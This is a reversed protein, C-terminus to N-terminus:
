SAASTSSAFKTFLHPYKKQFQDEREWTFEPGRRSNWRVKIIPIRIQKLWKVKHDIIEVPEEVFRLKDDIHIEDLSIALPEDSLCKKLNSIHSTIHVKSLQQPPKLRYVIIRVKALVKFPGIYRPNLKGRKGFHIVGKWPAVKLMVEDGVQFELPKCRVDAYSKQPDCAAQIRSKIQIIKETTDHIIELGTLQVDRVEVKLCTLCKSVYTAIDAKMNPWWYLKKMDQYMKDSGPHFSYKSKHSEHMILTRLYGFCPLWSRNKLCLTEDARPELKEKRIMGGVDKAEFNEPKRAEIKENQMLVVGLGKHSADCYVIFNKAGEPLASIPASCLKHKLLQFAAKQKDSWDFKVKKQTLKTMSKTIKSFGEIFLDIKSYVSSGQLQDFLDGIRPLPYRNKVTLKNLEQYDICMQFSGDKKKVFLVPAGWPLSSPRIFGKDFLEQLQDSLEKIESLALRYPAQCTRLFVELFDRVIPVDELRKEKSKDEAKKAAIHALFVPCGKEDSKELFMRECMLALEQFQQTYSVVDTGNNYHDKDQPKQNYKFTHDQAKKLDDALDLRQDNVQSREDHQSSTDQPGVLEYSEQNLFSGLAQKINARAPNGDESHYKPIVRINETERMMKNQDHRDRYIVARPKSAITYDKKFLFDSADWDSQTLNLKTQYSEIKLQLDKVRKRIIINRIWLNVANFLHVRDDGSLHNLQGQLHFLYLDEFDNPHLNKFDAKSIKYEKYDARYLVIEKLFAYGYREYTNLSIVCWHSIDYADSIDYVHESENQSPPGGLLLPKSVDLVLRHVEPNVLDVQDTLMRHCEEMQIQLSISSKYFSQSGQINPGDLKPTEPRDEESILKLWESRLKIKPLHAFNTDESDSINATDPIPEKLDSNPLPPPPDQDDRRRKRSKDKEALFEDRNEENITQNIKHPQDWLELTFVRSGLNQTTNDLTISKQEFAALKQELAIVRAALESDSISQQPPPPPLSRTTTNMTTTTLISAQTTSSVPKPPSLDIIPTSLPPISSSAQHIPVIVMSVVESDVNLKGSEDKTSKDNLFQDKITYADDLNKMSFLTGPTTRSVGPDPGAQDEDVFEQEQLPRSEPTKGPNSRAQGGSNTKDTDAGTEVDAPSLSDRVVNVFTDDHPHASPGTSTENTAPTWRKRKLQMKTNHKAVMELYANYYPANRINNSILENPIAMGFVEDDKGKPVFKLNSIDTLNYM